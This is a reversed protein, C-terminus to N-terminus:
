DHLHYTVVDQAWSLEPYGRDNFDKAYNFVYTALGGTSYLTWADWLKETAACYLVTKDMAKDFDSRLETLNSDDALARVYEAFDISYGQRTNGRYNTVKGAPHILPTLKYIERTASALDNLGQTSIVAMTCTRENAFPKSNYLNFTNTAAQVLDNASGKLLLMMNENYPMGNAPLESASGVIYKVANRLEYAVEVTAMYCADFYVYDIGRGELVKRLTTINMRQDFDVGFSMPKILPEDARGADEEIGDQQWGSAHSWMVLGYSNAPAFKVMDDLVANMRASTVSEGQTYTNLTTRGKATLEFLQADDTKSPSAYYVLWRYNDGKNVIAEEMEKLDSDSFGNSGLSNSAVMYVLVTRQAKNVVEPKHDNHGCSNLGLFLILLLLISTIKAFYKM